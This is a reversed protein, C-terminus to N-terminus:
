KKPELAAGFFRLMDANTVLVRERDLWFRAFEQQVRTGDSNYVQELTRLKKGTKDFYLRREVRVPGPDSYFTGLTTHILALSGDSRFCYRVIISNDESGSEVNAVRITKGELWLSAFEGRELDGGRQWPGEDARALKSTPAGSSLRRCADYAAAVDDEARATAAISSLLIAATLAANQRSLLMRPMLM